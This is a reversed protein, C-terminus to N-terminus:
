YKWCIILRDISKKISSNETLMWFGPKKALDDDDDDDDDNGL